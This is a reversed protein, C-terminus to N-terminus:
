EMCTLHRGPDGSDTSMAPWTAYSRRYYVLPSRDYVLGHEIRGFLVEHDGADVARHLRCEAHAIVHDALVPAGVLSPVWRLGAFKAPHKSAFRQSIEDAGEALINVVFAQSYRLAPLTRSQKDVCVLLLPPDMSVPCLHFEV